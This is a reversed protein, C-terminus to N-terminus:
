VSLGYILEKKKLKYNCSKRHTRRKRRRSKRSKRKGGYKKKYSEADKYRDLYKGVKKKCYTEDAGKCYIEYFRYMYGIQELMSLTYGVYGITCFPDLHVIEGQCYTKPVITKYKEANEKSAQLIRVVHIVTPACTYSEYRYTLADGIAVMLDCIDSSTMPGRLKEKQMKEAFDVKEYYIYRGEEYSGQLFDVVKKRSGDLFDPVKLTLKLTEMIEAMTTNVKEPSIFYANRLISNGAIPLMRQYEVETFGSSDLYFYDPHLPDNTPNPITMMDAYTEIDFDISSKGTFLLFLNEFRSVIYALGPIVLPPGSYQIGIDIDSTPTMSGFIGMKFHKLNPAIDPRFSFKMLDKHDKYTEYYLTQDQFTLTALLLLQYFLHTRLIWAVNQEKIKKIDVVYIEVGIKKLENLLFDINKIATVSTEGLPYDEMSIAFQTKFKTLDQSCREKISEVTFVPYM